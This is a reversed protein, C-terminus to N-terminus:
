SMMVMCSAPHKAEHCIDTVNVAWFVKKSPDDKAENGVRNIKGNIFRWHHFTVMLVFM